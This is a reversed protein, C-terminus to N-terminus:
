VACIKRQTHHRRNALYKAPSRQTVALLRCTWKIAVHRCIVEWPLCCSYSKAIAQRTNMFFLFRRTQELQSARRFHVSQHGSPWHVFRSADILVRSQPMSAVLLCAFLISYPVQMAFLLSSTRLFVHDFQRGGVVASVFRM